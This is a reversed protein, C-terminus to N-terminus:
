RSVPSGPSRVRIRRAPGPLADRSQAALGLPVIAIGLLAVLAKFFTM